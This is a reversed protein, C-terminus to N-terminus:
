SLRLALLMSSEDESLDWPKEKVYCWEKEESKFHLLSGLTKVALPLGRCKKVIEKGIPM